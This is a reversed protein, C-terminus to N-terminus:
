HSFRRVIKSLKLLARPIEREPTSAYGIMLGPVPEDKFYHLSLPTVSIGESLAARAIEVDDTGKCLRWTTQLGNGEDVPDLIDSMMRNAHSLLLQRKAAYNRRMKRIHRAYAGSRIFDSLAAQMAIPASTGLIFSVKRIQENVESPFVVYGLRLDPLMTKSFSGVYFTRRETDHSQLPPIRNSEFRFESDFDDEIIWSKAKTALKIIEQRQKIRMTVGLPFQCSPTLYILRPRHRVIANIDWHHGSISMSVLQAGAAQFAGRAGTYGPEELMVVDGEDVLLHSLLMFASQAGGTIMIQDPTCAVGRSSQMYNALVERLEKHGGYSHYGFTQGGSPHLNGRISRRWVSFPFLRWDPQGPQLALPRIHGIQHPASALKRGRSSLHKNADYPSTYAPTQRSVEGALVRARRRASVEIYGEAELQEYAAIVSNRSLGLDDALARSSPLTAGVVLIGRQIQERVHDFVQQFVPVTSRRDIVVASVFVDSPFAKMRTGGSQNFIARELNGISRYVKRM